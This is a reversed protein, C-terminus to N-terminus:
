TLETCIQKHSKVQLTETRPLLRKSAFTYGLRPVQPNDATSVIEPSMVPVSTQQMGLRPVDVHMARESQHNTHFLKKYAPPHNVHGGLYGSYATSVSNAPCATDGKEIAGLKKRYLVNTLRDMTLKNQGFDIHANVGKLFDCGLIIQSADKNEIVIFRLKYTESGLKCDVLAEGLVPISDGDALVCLKVSSPYTLAGSAGDRILMSSIVSVNAGTDCIAEHQRGGCTVRIVHDRFIALENRCMNIANIPPGHCYPGDKRSVNSSINNTRVHASKDLLIDNCIDNNVYM